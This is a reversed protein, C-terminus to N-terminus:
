ALRRLVAVYGGYHQGDAPLTTQESVLEARLAAPDALVARVVAGTEEGDISCTSYAVAGAPGAARDRVRRARDVALLVARYHAGPEGVRRRLAGFQHGR